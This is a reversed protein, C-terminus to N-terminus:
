ENGLREFVEGYQKMIRLLASQVHVSPERRGQEWNRYTAVPVDLANAAGDQTAKGRWTRLKTRFKNKM